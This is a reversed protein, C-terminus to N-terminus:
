FSNDLSLHKFHIYYKKLAVQAHPEFFFFPGGDRCADHVQARAEATPRRLVVASARLDM